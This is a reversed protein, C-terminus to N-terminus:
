SFYTSGGASRDEVPDGVQANGSNVESYAGALYEVQHSGGAGVHETDVPPDGQVFGTSPCARVRNELAVEVGGDAEGRDLGDVCRNGIHQSAIAVVRPVDEVEAVPYEGLRVRRHEFVNDVEDVGM